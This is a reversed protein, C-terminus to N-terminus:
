RAQTQPCQGPRAAQDPIRGPFETETREPAMGRYGQVSAALEERHLGSGSVRQAAREAQPSLDSARDLSENGNAYGAGMDITKLRSEAQPDYLSVFRYSGQVEEKADEEAKKIQEGLSDLERKEIEPGLTGWDVEAKVKLWASGPRWATRFTGAPSGPAGSWRPQPLAQFVLREERDVPCGARPHPQKERWEETPSMVVLTMRPDDSVANGDEPFYVKQIGTGRNFEREVLKRIAPKVETEDDLSARRDAM